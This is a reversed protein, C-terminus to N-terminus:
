DTGVWERIWAVTEAYGRPLLEVFFARKHRPVDAIKMAKITREILDIRPAGDAVAVHINPFRPGASM